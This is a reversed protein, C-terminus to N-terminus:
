KGRTVKLEVTVDPVPDYATIIKQKYKITTPGIGGAFISGEYLHPIRSPTLNWVLEKLEIDTLKTTVKAIYPYDNKIITGLKIEKEKSLYSNLFGIVKKIPYDYLETKYECSRKIM